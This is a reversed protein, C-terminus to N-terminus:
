GTVPIQTRDAGGQVNVAGAIVWGVVGNYNIQWWSTNSNRGVIATAAGAPLTGLLDDRANPSRRINVDTQAVARYGTSPPQGITDSITVPVRGTNAVQVYNGFVWGFVGEVDVQWWTQSSNRGVVQYTEGPNIKAVVRSNETTPIDRVNLRYQGVSATAGTYAPADAASNIEFEIFADGRAEYYEVMLTHQGGSLTVDATYTEGFTDHWEDIVLAGDVYVRVGDDATVSIRYTGPEFVQVRTWRASFNDPDIIGPPAGRRWNQSVEPVSVIVSPSGALDRNNYYSAIWVDSPPAPTIIPGPPLAPTLTVVTSGLPTLEYNLFAVGIVEYYEIRFSHTGGSLAVNVSYTQGTADHWQDIVLAGDVYVRVGDDARVSIRYTGGALQQMSTFRASFNDPNIGLGPASTGWNHNPSAEIRSIVPTGRLETNNFYEALWQGPAVVPAPTPSISGLPLLSYYIFAEGTREYYEVIVTHVGGSLNLDRTYTEGTADHWEDIVLAGDIYVRVGDDASVSLRHLGPELNVQGIWRVSFNNARVNEVPRGTGWNYNPANEMRITAPTDSLTPNNYYQAIWQENAVLGGGSAQVPPSQASINQFNFRLFAEDTHEYYEVIILHPGASLTMEHTYTEGTANHWQDIVLSNNVYVRVGDDAQVDIRYTGAELVPSTYWRVSFNDAAMGPLPSGTGWEHNPEDDAQIAVPQGSLDRNDYYQAVWTFNQTQAHVSATLVLLGALLACARRGIM